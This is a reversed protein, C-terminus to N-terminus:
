RNGIFVPVASYMNHSAGPRALGDKEALAERESVEDAAYRLDEEVWVAWEDVVEKM